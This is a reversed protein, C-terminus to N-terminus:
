SIILAREKFTSAYRCVYCVCPRKAKDQRNSNQHSAVRPLLNSSGFPRTSPSSSLVPKSLFVLEREDIVVMGAREQNTTSAVSSDPILSAIGAAAITLSLAFASFLRSATPEQHGNYCHPMKQAEGRSSTEKEQAVSVKGNM